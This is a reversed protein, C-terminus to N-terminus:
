RAEVTDKVSEDLNAGQGVLPKRYERTHHVCFILHSGSKLTVVTSAQAGCRDCRDAVMLPAMTSKPPAITEGLTAARTM